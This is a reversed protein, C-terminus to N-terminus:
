DSDDSDDKGRGGRKGGAGRKRPCTERLPEALDQFANTCSCGSTKATKLAAGLVQKCSGTERSCFAEIEDEDDASDMEEVCSSIEEGSLLTACEEELADDVEVSECNNRSGAGKRLGRKPSDDSDDHCAAKVADKIAIFDELCRCKRGSKKLGKLLVRACSKTGAERDGSCFAEADEDSSLADLASSCSAFDETAQLEALNTTCANVEDETLEVASCNFKGRPGRGGRGGKRGGQGRGGGGNRLARIAEDGTDEGHCSSVLAVAFVLCPVLLVSTFKM